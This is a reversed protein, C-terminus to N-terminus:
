RFFSDDIKLDVKDNKIKNMIKEFNASSIYLHERNKFVIFHGSNLSCSPDYNNAIYIIENYNICFKDSIYILSMKHSSQNKM